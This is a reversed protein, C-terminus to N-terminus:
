LQLRDRSAIKAGLLRRPRMQSIVTASLSTTRLSTGHVKSVLSKCDRSGPKSDGGTVITWGIRGYWTGSLKRKTVRIISTSRRPM